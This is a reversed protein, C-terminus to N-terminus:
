LTCRSEYGVRWVDGRPYAGGVVQSGELVEQSLCHRMRMRESAGVMWLWEVEEWAAVVRMVLACSDGVWM